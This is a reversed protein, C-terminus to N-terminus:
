DAREAVLDIDVGVQFAVWTDIAYDGQGVGFDNRLLDAHGKARATKGALDLTFPLAIKKTVGRLTLDGTAVFGKEARKVETATFTAQPTKAVDFWDKEPLAGDRQRDGTAASALDVTVLIKATEPHDPDLTIQADFRQFRGTFKEGMQTGTFALSSKDATLKWEAAHAVGAFVFLSM